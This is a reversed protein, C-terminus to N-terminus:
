IVKLHIEHRLPRPVAHITIIWKLDRRQEEISMLAFPMRIPGSYWESIIQYPTSTGHRRATVNWFSFDVAIRDFQAVGRLVDSVAKAGVPYSLTHPIKSKIRTPLIQQQEM